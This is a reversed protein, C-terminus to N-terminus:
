TRPAPNSGAFRIPTNIWKEWGVSAGHLPLYGRNAYRWAVRVFACQRVFSTRGSSVALPILPFVEHSLSM